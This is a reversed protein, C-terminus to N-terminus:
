YFLYPANPCSSLGIAKFAASIRNFWHLPSRQLGYITKNFKWLTGPKSIPCGAPLCVIVVEDEPLVGHCFANRCDAQKLVRNKSVSMSTLLQVQTQTIVPAYVQGKDWSCDEMNGLVVICSKAHIPCGLEDHKGNLVCMLSLAKPAGQDHLRRYEEITIKHFIGLAILGQLEEM